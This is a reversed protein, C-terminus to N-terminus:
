RERIYFKNFGTVGFYRQRSQQRRIRISGAPSNGQRRCFSWLVEGEENVCLVWGSRGSKTRLALTGDASETYGALAIRGEASVAIDSLVDEGSGGYTYTRAEGCAQAAMMVLLCLVTM